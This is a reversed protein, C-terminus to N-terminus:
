FLSAGFSGERGGGELLRARGVCQSSAGGVERRQRDAMIILLSLTHTFNNHSASHCARRVVVCVVDQRVFVPFGIEDLLLLLLLLWIM